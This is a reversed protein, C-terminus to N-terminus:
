RGPPALRYVSGTVDDTVYVSGDPGVAAAVPRGWRKGDPGQFGGVLTRQPALGEGQIAFFSVEPAVPPDANWSGHVGVLAGRDYPAPLQGDVFSLGLPASHAGITQEVPTLTACNM